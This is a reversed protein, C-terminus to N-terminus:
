RIVDHERRAPFWDTAPLFGSRASGVAETPKIEVSSICEPRCFDRMGNWPNLLTIRSLAATRVVSSHVCDPPKEARQGGLVYSDSSKEATAFQQRLKPSFGPGEPHRESAWKAATSTHRAYRRASRSVTRRLPTVSHM